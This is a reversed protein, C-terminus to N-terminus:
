SIEKVAPIRPHARLDGAHWQLLAALVVALPILLMVVLELAYVHLRRDSFRTSTGTERVKLALFLVAFCNLAVSLFWIGGLLPAGGHSAHLLEVATIALAGLGALAFEAAIFRFGHLRIDYKVAEYLDIRRLTIPHTM